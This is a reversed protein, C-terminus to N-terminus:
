PKAIQWKGNDLGDGAADGPKTDKSWRYLPSGKYAWQKKGDDRTIVTWEEGSQATEGAALPPWAVACADNCNSFGPMDRTYTYLTLGANDTLAPGAATQAVKAPPASQAHASSMGATGIIMALALVHRM